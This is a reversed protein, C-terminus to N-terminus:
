PCHAFIIEQKAVKTYSWNAFFILPILLTVLLKQLLKYISGVNWRQWSVKKASNYELTFLNKILTKDKRTIPM